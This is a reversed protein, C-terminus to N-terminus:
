IIVSSICHKHIRYLLLPAPATPTGAVLAKKINRGELVIEVDSAWALYNLGTQALEEFERNMIGTM